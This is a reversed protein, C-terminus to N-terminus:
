KLVYKSNSIKCYFNYAIEYKNYGVGRYISLSYLTFIQLFDNKKCQILTTMRFVM